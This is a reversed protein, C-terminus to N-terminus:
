KTIGLSEELTRINAERESLEKEWFAYKDKIEREYNLININNSTSSIYIMAAIVLALIVNVIILIKIKDDKKKDLTKRDELKKEAEALKFSEAKSPNFIRAPINPLEEETAFGQKIITMRLKRLYELGVITEFKEETVLGSYLRILMDKNKLNVKKMLRDITEKEQLAAEYEKKSDFEYGNIVMVEKEEM